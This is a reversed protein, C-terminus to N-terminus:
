PTEQRAPAPGAAVPFQAAGAPLAPDGFMRLYAVFPEAALRFAELDVFGRDWAAAELGDLDCGWYRAFTQDITNTRFRMRGGAVGPGEITPISATNLREAVAVVQRAAAMVPETHLRAPIMWAALSHFSCTGLARVLMTLLAEQPPLSQDHTTLWGGTPRDLGHGVATALALEVLEPHDPDVDALGALVSDRHARPYDPHLLMLATLLDRETVWRGGVDRGANRAHWADLFRTHLNDIPLDDADWPRLAPADCAAMSLLLRADAAKADYPHHRRWTLLRDAAAGAVPSHSTAARGLSRYSRSRFPLDRAIDLLLDAETQNLAAGSVARRLALRINVLPESYARYGDEAPGHVVAVEDDGTVVLDRYLAFVDGVGRMGYPHLEAARLAGMSSSGAVVVGRHLLELIERHRVAAVQLFLGDILLVRDGPRADLRLLDGHAVPPLFIAQPLLTAAEDVPLSPGLHVFDKRM